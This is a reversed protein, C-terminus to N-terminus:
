VLLLICITFEEIARDFMTMFSYLQDQSVQYWEKGGHPSKKFRFDKLKRHAATEAKINDTVEVVHYYRLNNHNATKLDRIRNSM